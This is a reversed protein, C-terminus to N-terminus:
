HYIHPRVNLQGSERGLGWRPPRDTAGVRNSAGLAAQCSIGRRNELKGTDGGTHLREHALRQAREKQNKLKARDCGNERRKKLPHQPLKGLASGRGRVVHDETPEGFRARSARCTPSLECKEGREPEPPASLSGERTKRRTNNLRFVEKGWALDVGVCGGTGERPCKSRPTSGVARAPRKTSPVLCDEGGGRMPRHNM